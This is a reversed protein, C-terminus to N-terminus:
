VSGVFRTPAFRAVRFSHLAGASGLNPTGLLIIRRVRQAGNLNVDFDNDDLTDEEGYRLYYRAILGGMSHAVLDVKLEPDAYDLRIQEIFQALKRVTQVNDQRWDYTFVYYNRASALQSEGVRALQYGGASKLTDTIGAYFDKGVVKDLLGSTKLSSEKPLLSDPDIELAMDEYNSFMLDSLKGPWIEEGSNIDALRSGMTGHILIVPPQQVTRNQKYLRKLDPKVAHSCSQLGLAGFILTVFLLKSNLITM